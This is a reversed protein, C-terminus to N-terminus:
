SVGVPRLVAGARTPRRRSDPGSCGTLHWYETMPRLQANMRSTPVRQAPWRPGAAPSGSPQRLPPSPTTPALHGYRASRHPPNVPPLMSPRHRGGRGLRGPELQQEVVGCPLRLKPCRSVREAGIDGVNGVQMSASVSCLALVSLNAPQPLPPSCRGAAVVPDHPRLMGLLGTGTLAVFGLSSGAGPWEAPKDQSRSPSPPWSSPSMSASRAAALGRRAPRDRSARAEWLALRTEVGVALDTTVLADEPLAGSATEPGSGRRLHSVFTRFIVRRLYAEPNSEVRPWAFWAKLLADQLLDEASGLSRTLIFAVRMLHPSRIAVFNDYHARDAV